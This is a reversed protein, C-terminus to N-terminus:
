CIFRAILLEIKQSIVGHLGNFAMDGHCPTDESQLHFVRGDLISTAAFMSFLCNLVLSLPHDELRLNRRQALLEEDYFFLSTVL